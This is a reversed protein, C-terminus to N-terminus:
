ACCDACQKGSLNDVVITLPSLVAKQKAVPLCAPKNESAISKDNSQHEKNHESCLFLNLSLFHFFDSIKVNGVGSGNAFQGFLFRLVCHLHKAELTAVAHHKYVAFASQKIGLHTHSRALMAQVVDKFRQRILAFPTATDRKSNRGCLHHIAYFPHSLLSRLNAKILYTEEIAFERFALRQARIPYLSDNNRRHLLAVLCALRDYVIHTAELVENRFLALATLKNSM